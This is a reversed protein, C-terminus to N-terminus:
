DHEARLFVKLTGALARVLEPLRVERVEVDDAPAPVRTTLFSM